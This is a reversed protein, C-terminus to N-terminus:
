SGWAKSNPCPRKLIACLPEQDCHRALPLLRSKGTSAYLGVSLNCLNGITLVRGFPWTSMACDLIAGVGAPKAGATRCQLNRKKHFRRGALEALDEVRYVYDANDRDEEVDLGANRLVSATSGPIRVFGVIEMDLAKAVKAPSVGGLPHGFVVNPDHPSGNGNVLFVLSGEVEAFFVPRSHRWVFLNTFTLESVQPPHQHWYTEVLPKAELDVPRLEPMSHIGIQPETNESVDDYAGIGWRDIKLLLYL